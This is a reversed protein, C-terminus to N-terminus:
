GRAACCRSLRTLSPLLWTPAGCRMKPPCTKRASRTRRLQRTKPTAAGSGFTTLSECWLCHASIPERRCAAAWFRWAPREPPSLLKTAVASVAATRLETILRGDMIALPEGTDARRLSRYRGSAHATRARPQGPLRQGAEHGDRRRLRSAHTGYARQAAPGARHQPGAAGRTRRFLRHAGAGDRPDSRGPAAAPRIADEDLFPVPVRNAPATM